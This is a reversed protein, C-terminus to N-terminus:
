KKDAGVIVRSFCSLYSVTVQLNKGKYAEGTNYHVPVYHKKFTHRRPQLGLLGYILM